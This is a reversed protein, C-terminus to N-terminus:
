LSVNLMPVKSEKQDMTIEEVIKKKRPCFKVFIQIMIGIVIIALGIFRGMSPMITAVKLDAVKEEDLTMLQEVWM